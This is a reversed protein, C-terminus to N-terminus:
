VKYLSDIMQIHQRYSKTWYRAHDRCLWATHFRKDRIAEVCKRDWKRAIAKLWIAHRMDDLKGQQPAHMDALQGAEDANLTSIHREWVKMLRSYIM